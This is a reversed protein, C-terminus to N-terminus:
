GAVRPPATTARLMIAAELETVAPLHQGQAANVLHDAARRGMEAAPVRVTTLAPSFQSALEHDDYGTVSLAAPVGIGRAQAELLVGFALVDNGCMVATPPAPLALLDRLAARGDGITYPREYLLERPLAIGRADLAARVGAVRAAARDNGRTIGAIMAIRRHGLDILHEAMRRAPTENDFGVCAVPAKPDNAWTIVAPVRAAHILQFISEEHATGVLVVGDVGREVLAKLERRERRPDYEMSAVLLVYGHEDLRLQLANICEAFIANDLTPVIAGITASRRSALARAAGDAVYGLREVASTVRQRLDANVRDPANLVRSVTAISVRAAKAVERITIRSTVPM